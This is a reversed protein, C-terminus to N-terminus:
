RICPRPATVFHNLEIRARERQWCIRRPLIRQRVTLEDVKAKLEVRQCADKKLDLRLTQLETQLVQIDQRAVKLEASLAAISQGEQISCLQRRLDDREEEAKALSYPKQGPGTRWDDLGSM